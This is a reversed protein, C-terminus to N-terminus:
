RKGRRKMSAALPSDDVLEAEVHVVEPEAETPLGGTKLRVLEEPTIFAIVKAGPKFIKKGMKNKYYGLERLEVVPVWPATKTDLGKAKVSKRENNMRHKVAEFVTEYAGYVQPTSLPSGEAFYEFSVGRFPGQVCHLVIRGARKWGQKSTFGLAEATPLETPFPQSIHVMQDYPGASSGDPKDLWIRAGYQMETPDVVFRNQESIPDGSEALYFAGGEAGNFRIAEFDSAQKPTRETAARAEVADLMEDMTALLSSESKVLETSM